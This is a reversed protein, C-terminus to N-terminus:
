NNLVSFSLPFISVILSSTFTTRFCISLLFFNVSVKIRFVFDKPLNVEIPSLWKDKDLLENIELVGSRKFQEIGQNM